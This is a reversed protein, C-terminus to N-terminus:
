VFGKERSEAPKANSTLPSSVAKMKNIALPTVVITSDSNSVAAGQVAPGSDASEESAVPTLHSKTQHHCPCRRRRSPPAAHISVTGEQNDTNKDETVSDLRSVTTVLM